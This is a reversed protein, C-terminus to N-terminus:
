AKPKNRGRSKSLWSLTVITSDPPRLGDDALSVGIKSCDLRDLAAALAENGTLPNLPSLECNELAAETEILSSAFRVAEALASECIVAWLRARPPDSGELERKKAGISEGLTALVLSFAVGPIPALLKISADAVTSGPFSEYLVAPTLLRVAPDIERSLAAVGAASVATPRGEPPPEVGFPALDLGAKRALRHVEKPRVSLKFGRIKKM